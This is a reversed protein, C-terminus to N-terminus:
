AAKSRRSRSKARRKAFEYLEEYERILKEVKKRKRSARLAKILGALSLGGLMGGLALGGSLLPDRKGKTLIAALAGLVAGWQALITGWYTNLAYPKLDALTRMLKAYEEPKLDLAKRAEEIFAKEGERWAREEEWLTEAGSIFPLMRPFTKTLFYRLTGRPIDHRAAHGLEHIMAVLGPESRWPVYVRDIAPFYLPGVERLKRPLEPDEFLERLARKYYWKYIKPLFPNEEIRRQWDKLEKGPLSYIELFRLRDKFRREIIKAIREAEEPSLPDGRRIKVELPVFPNRSWIAM